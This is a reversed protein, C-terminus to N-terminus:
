KRKRITKSESTARALLRVCVQYDEEVDVQMEESLSDLNLGGMEYLLKGQEYLGSRKCHRIWEALTADNPREKAPVALGQQLYALYRKIHRSTGQSRGAAKLQEEEASEPLRYTGAETKYFYDLLWEALPRRPKDKVTYVYQEFLDSYHVGEVAPHKKLYTSIFSKLKEAATDEKASEAADLVSAGVEKLYWRGIEHTGFLDPSENEFLNKKVPERVEEAVQALIEDFNHAEMRGARVMRSVVEDYIRDKTAGPNVTLYDRIISRVKESFTAQDEDGRITVVEAAEGLRPKRFNIVLDRKTVKDATRQNASKEATEIFLATGAQDVLFGVEAMIDQVLAWTGESTDHYCLSLWRGPKLVRYTEGLAQRMMNAWDTETKGRIENVIIEEDHWHTDLGLWAEWVFNLEGYQVKDAYPPDTFVYDVSNTPLASLDCSSQTSGYVKPQRLFIAIEGWGKIFDGFKRSLCDFQNRELNVQPIYYTGRQFGGGGEHYQQLKSGSFINSSFVM